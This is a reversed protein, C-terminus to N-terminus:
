LNDGSTTDLNEEDIVPTDSAQEGGDTLAEEDTVVEEETNVVEFDQRIVTKYFTYGISAVAVIIIVWLLIKSKKDM